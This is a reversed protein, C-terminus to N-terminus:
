LKNVEKVLMKIDLHTYTDHLLSNCKHGMIKKIIDSSVNAMRMKTAFTHRADHSKHDFGLKIMKRRLWINFQNAKYKTGLLTENNSNYMFYRILPIIKNCLPIIRDKGADTKSGGICYNKNLFINDKKLTRIEGIRMGTYIMILVIKM